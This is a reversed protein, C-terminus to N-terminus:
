FRQMPLSCFPNLLHLSFGLPQPRCLHCIRGSIHSINGFLICFFFGTLISLFIYNLMKLILPYLMNVKNLLNGFRDSLLCSVLQYMCITILDSIVSYQDYVVVTSLYWLYIQNFALVLLQLHHGKVM